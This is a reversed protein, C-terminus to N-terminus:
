VKPLRTSAFDSFRKYNKIKESKFDFIIFVVFREGFAAVRTACAQVLTCPKSSKNLLNFRRIFIVPRLSLVSM